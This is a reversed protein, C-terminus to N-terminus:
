GLRRGDENRGTTRVPLYGRRDVWSIDHNNTNAHESIASSDTKGLRVNAMHEKQRTKLARGTEGIYVAECNGCPIEYVVGTKKELPVEDKPKSLLQRLTTLPKIATKINYSELVRKIRETTGKVYPITAILGCHEQEQKNPDKPRLPHM